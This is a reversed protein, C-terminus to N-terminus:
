NDKLTVRLIVISNGLSTLQLYIFESIKQALQTLNLSVWVM